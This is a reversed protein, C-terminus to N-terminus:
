FRLLKLQIAKKILIDAMTFHIQPKKAVHNAVAIPQCDFIIRYKHDYASM